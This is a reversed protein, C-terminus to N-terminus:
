RTLRDALRDILRAVRPRDFAAFRDAFEARAALCDAHLAAALGTAVARVAPDDSGAGLEEIRAAHVAADQHRGLEDQLRRLVRVFRAADDAPFVPGFVDFISRVRKADKRLEHLREAGSSGDITRGDEVVRRHARRLRHAVVIGLPRGAHAAEGPCGGAAWGAVDAVLDAARPGALHAVMEDRAAARRDAVVQRFRDLAGHDVAPVAAALGAWDGLLVDLDRTPGTVRNLWAFERAFRRRPEEPVVGRGHALLARTRRVAVRLEHLFEIDLDAVTGPWTAALVAAQEDLGAAFGDVAPQRRTPGPRSPPRTPSLPPDCREVLDLLDGPRHKESRDRLEERLDRRTPRLDPPWSADPALEVVGAWRTGGASAVRQLIEAIPPGSSAPPSTWVARATARYEAVALLARGGLVTRLRDTLPGPPLDAPQRPPRELAGTWTAVGHHRIVLSAPEGTRRRHEVTWGAVRLDRGFTDLRVREVVRRPGLRLGHDVLLAAADDPEPVVFTTGSAVPLVIAM